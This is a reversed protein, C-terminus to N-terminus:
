FALWLSPFKNSNWRVLWANNDLIISVFYNYSIYLQVFIFLYYMIITCLLVNVNLRIIYSIYVQIFIYLYYMIITCLLVNVNLLQVFHVITCIHVSVVDYNYMIQVYHVFLQVFIYLNAVILSLCVSIFDLQITHLASQHISLKCFPLFIDDRGGRHECDLPPILFLLCTFLYIM